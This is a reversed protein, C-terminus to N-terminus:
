EEPEPVPGAYRMGERDMFSPNESRPRTSNGHIEVEFIGKSGPGHSTTDHYWYWGASAPKSDSWKM